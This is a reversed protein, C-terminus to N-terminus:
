IADNDTSFLLIPVCDATKLGIKLNKQNTIIADAKIEDNKPIISKQDIVLVKNSHVQHLLFIDEPRKQNNGLFQYSFM